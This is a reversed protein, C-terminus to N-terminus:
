INYEKTYKDKPITYTFKITADKINKAPLGKWIETDFNIQFEKEPIIEALLKNIDYMDPAFMVARTTLFYIRNKYQRYIIPEKHVEFISDHAAPIFNFMNNAAQVSNFTLEYIDIKPYYQIGPTINPERKKFGIGSMGAIENTAKKPICHLLDYVIMEEKLSGFVNFPDISSFGLSDAKEVLRIMEKSPKSTPFKESISNNEQNCSLLLLCLLIIIYNKTKM